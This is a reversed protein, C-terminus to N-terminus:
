PAFVRVPRGPSEALVARGAREAGDRAWVLAVVAGPPSQAVWRALQEPYEVREGEFAVILDGRRLGARAAAGGTLVSEVMAGLPILAGDIDSRVTEGRTSVGLFGHRVRGERLLSEYVPRLNEIPIVLSMGTPRREAGPGGSQQEPFGLEGLVLGVLEGRANLVAGGSNGPSVNNTVRLLSTRPDPYREAVIGMTADPQRRASMGMGLALVLQGLRVGARAIRLTPFKLEPVRLVAVNFVTDTSVVRAEVKLDNRTRVYVHEAGLVVSATTLIASEEVAVGSGSRRYQRSEIDGTFANRHSVTRQAVVTVVSAGAEYVIRNIDGFEGPAPGQAGADAAFLLALLAALAAARGAARRSHARM